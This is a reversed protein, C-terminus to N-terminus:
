VNLKIQPHAGKHQVYKHMSYSISLTKRRERM